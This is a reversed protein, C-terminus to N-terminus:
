GGVNQEGKHDKSGGLALWLEREAPSMIEYSLPWLMAFSLSRVEKANNFGIVTGDAHIIKFDDPMM